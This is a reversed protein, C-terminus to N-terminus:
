GLADWFEMWEARPRSYNLSDATWMGFNKVGLTKAMAVKMRLSKPNDYWVERWGRAASTDVLFPSQSAADWRSEWSSNGLLERILGYPRQDNDLVKGHLDVKYIYGYWPLGVVLKAPPVGAAILQELGARVSPLPANARSHDNDPPPDDYDNLDYDQEM